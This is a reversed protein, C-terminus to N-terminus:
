NTPRGSLALLHLTVLFIDPSTVNLQFQPKPNDHTKKLCGNDKQIRESKSKINASTELTM